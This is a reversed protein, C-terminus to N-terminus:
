DCEGPVEDTDNAFSILLIKIKHIYEFLLSNM